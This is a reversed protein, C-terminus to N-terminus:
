CGGVSLVLHLTSDSMIGCAWCSKNNDLTKGAYVLRQVDPAIGIKRALQEKVERILMWPNGQVTRTKGQLDKVFIQYVDQKAEEEQVFMSEHPEERFRKRYNIVTQDVRSQRELEDDQESMTTHHVYEGCLRKCISTYARTNLICEHWIADLLPPLGGNSTKDKVQLFRLFEKCRINWTPKDDTNHLRRKVEGFLFDYEILLEEIM